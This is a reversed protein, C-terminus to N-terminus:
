LTLVLTHNMKDKDIHNTSCYRKKFQEENKLLCRIDEIYKKYKDDIFFMNEPNEEGYRKTLRTITSDLFESVTQNPNRFKGVEYSREFTVEISTNRDASSILKGYDSRPEDEFSSRHDEIAMAMAQMEENSYLQKIFEDELFMKASIKEHEEDNIARGIDHYAAIVFVTTPDLDLQLNNLLDFSRNIVDIIHNLGHGKDNTGYLPFVSKEIYEVIRPNVKNIIDNKLIM